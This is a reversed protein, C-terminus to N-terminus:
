TALSADDISALATERHIRILRGIRKVGALQGLGIRRYLLEESCSLLLALDAVSVFEAQRARELRERITLPKAM